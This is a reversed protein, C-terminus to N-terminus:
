SSLAPRVKFDDPLDDTGPMDYVAGASSAGARPSGLLPSAAGREPVDKYPTPAAGYQPPAQSYNAAM